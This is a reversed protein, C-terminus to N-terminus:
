FDGQFARDGLNMKLSLKTYRTSLTPQGTVFTMINISHM